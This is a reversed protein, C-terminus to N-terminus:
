VGVLSYIPHVMSSWHPRYEQDKEAVFYDFISRMNNIAQETCDSSPTVASECNLYTWGVNETFTSNGILEFAVGQDAFRQVIEDYAYYKSTSTRKHDATQKEAMARSRAEATIDLATDHKYVKLKEQSRLDNVWGIWTTRLTEINLSGNARSTSKIPKSEDLVQQLLKNTPASSPKSSSTKSTVPQITKTTVVTKVAASTTTKADGSEGIKKFLVSTNKTGSKPLSSSSLKKNFQDDSLLTTKPSSVDVKRYRRRPTSLSPPMVSGPQLKATSSTVTTPQYTTHKTKALYEKELIKLFADMIVIKKQTM